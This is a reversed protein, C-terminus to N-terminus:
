NRPRRYTIYDKVWRYAACLMPKPDALSVIPHCPGNLLQGIWRFWNLQGRRMLERSTSVDARINMWRCGDSPRAVESMNNQLAATYYLWAFDVGSSMALQVWIPFRLNIELLIPKNNYDRKYQLSLFGRFDLSRIIKRSIQAIDEQWKTQMYCGVGMDVPHIRLKHGILEGRIHGDNDVLCAFSSHGADHGEVLEQVVVPSAIKKARDLLDTLDRDDNVRIAKHNLGQQRATDSNWLHTYEPKVVSPYALDSLETKAYFQPDIVRTVPVPLAVSQAIQALGCKSAVTALREDEWLCMHIHGRLLQQYKHLYMVARDNTPLVVPIVGLRHAQDILWQALLQTDVSDGPLSVVEACRTKCMPSSPDRTDVIIVPVGHRQLSRASALAAETAELLIATPTSAHNNIRQM